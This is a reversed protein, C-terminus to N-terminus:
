VALRLEMVLVRRNGIKPNKFAAVTRFGLAMLGKVRYEYFRGLILSVGAARAAEVRISDLLGGLGQHRASPCVVLHSLFAFPETASLSLHRIDEFGPTEDTRNHICLRAAGVMTQGRTVIWHRAHCAHNDPYPNVSFGEGQWVEARFRYTESVISPDFVEVPGCYPPPAILSRAAGGINTPHGAPALAVCSTPQDSM